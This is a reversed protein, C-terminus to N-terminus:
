GARPVGNTGPLRRGLRGAGMAPISYIELVQSLISIGAMKKAPMMTLAVQKGIHEWPRAAM